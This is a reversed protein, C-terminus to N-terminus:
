TSPAERGFRQRVASEFSIAYDRERQLRTAEYGAAELRKASEFMVSMDFPQQELHALYEEVATLYGMMGGLETPCYSKKARRLAEAGSPNPMALNESGCIVQLRPNAACLAVTDDDLTGGAANVVLADIPQRLLEPKGSADWVRAGTAEAAARRTPNAEVGVVMTGQARLRDFIHRGINGLGVLGVTAKEIPIDLARLMGVLVYYNGEATPKSTDADVSGPFRRSLYDLSQTRGDSMLGHGLDQGTTLHVGSEKEFERFCEIAWELLEFDHAQGVRAEPTPELVCKGGVIRGMDRQALPGGVHILRSWYVKEEMGMALEIAERDPDFGPADTRERPAIRFGGLSLKGSDPEAHTAISLTWRRQRDRFRSVWVNPSSTHALEPM